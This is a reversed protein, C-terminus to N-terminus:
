CHQISACEKSKGIKEPTLLSAGLRRTLTSLLTADALGVADLRKMKHADRVGQCHMLKINLGASVVVTVPQWQVVQLAECTRLHKSYATATMSLGSDTHIAQGTDGVVM